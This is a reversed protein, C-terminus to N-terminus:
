QPACMIVGIPGYGEPIWGEAVMQSRIDLSTTYRHNPAGGQGNNYLRYVPQTAAACNGQQNPVPINFVDGEFLWSPSQKVFACEPADPTYFHSSKPTFATSFFRCVSASDPPANAYANFTEGTRSWGGFAGNDLATIEASIATMFYHGLGAHYYETVPQIGPTAETLFRYVLLGENGYGSITGTLALLAKGGSPALLSMAQAPTYGDTFTVLNVPAVGDQGFTSDLSGDPNYRVLVPRYTTATYGPPLSVTVQQAGVLLFKGDDQVVFDQLLLTLGTPNKVAGQNGFTADVSGDRGFRLLSFDSGGV